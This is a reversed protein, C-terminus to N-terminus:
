YKGYEDCIASVKKVREMIGNPPVQDAVGLVFRPSTIMIDLMSKIHRIFEAEPVNPTFMIGPAGGWIITREPICSVIEEMTMDGVPAPTVAEIVDFGTEAVQRILGRLTGDMHIFSIKGAKKIESIWKQEYPRLYQTYYGGVVESSLNEPIMIMEAPSDIALRAALDYKSEMLRLIQEIREPIDALMLMLPEVGFFTTACQMFPSRPTYCLVGGNDNIISKRREAEGYNAKFSLSEIYYQFAPLDEESEVFHKVFASSSSVPLFRSVETLSGLPTAMTTVTDNGKRTKQFRVSGTDEEFPFYGQLYFGCGNDRNLEFYGDGQYKDPLTGALKHAGYWYDLDAFWPVRDPKEYSFIKILRERNTM